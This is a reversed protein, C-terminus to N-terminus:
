LAPLKELETKAELQGFIERARALHQQAATHDQPGRDRALYLRACVAHIRGTNYKDNLEEFTERAQRCHQQAAEWDQREIDIMGMVMTAHALEQRVNAEGALRVAEAAHEQAEQLEEQRIDCVAHIRTQPHADFAARFSAGRGAAGVIGINLKTLPTM